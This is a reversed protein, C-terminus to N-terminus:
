QTLYIYTLFIQAFHLWQDFGVSVFFWHVKKENWLRSNLRSTFYDTITHSIFTIGAFLLLRLISINLLSITGLFMVSTYTVTHLLLAKNSTSKNQAMYDTQCLFDAIWHIFLLYLVTIVNTTM